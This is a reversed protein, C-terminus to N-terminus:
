GKKINEKFEIFQCNQLSYNGKSNIRDISPNLLSDANDRKWLFELDKKTLLLKIGKAGYSKYSDSWRCNCRRKAYIFFKDWPRNKDRAVYQKKRNKEDYQRLHEKNEIRWKKLYKKCCEKCTKLKGLRSLRNNSFYEFKKQKECKICKITM